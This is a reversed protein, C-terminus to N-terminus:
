QFNSLILKTAQEQEIRAYPFAPHGCYGIEFFICYDPLDVLEMEYELQQLYLRDLVHYLMTNLPKM